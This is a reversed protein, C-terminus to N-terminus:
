YGCAEAAGEIRRLLSDLAGREWEAFGALLKAEMALAEPAVTEYLARGAATLALRHSRQDADDATRGILGRGELAKAARSVTVKDLKARTVIARPAMAAGEGLIAVVRWEAISIGFRREYLTAIVASVANTAVSLRYPIFNDLQLASHPM